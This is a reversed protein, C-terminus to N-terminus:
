GRFREGTQSNLYSSWRTSIFLQVPLPTERLIFFTNQWAITNIEFTRDSIVSIMMANSVM